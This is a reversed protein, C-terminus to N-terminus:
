RENTAMYESETTFLAAVPQKRSFCYVAASALKKVGGSVSLRVDLDTPLYADVFALM